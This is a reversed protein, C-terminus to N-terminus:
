DANTMEEDWQRYTVAQTHPDDVRVWPAALRFEGRIPDYSQFRFGAARLKSAGMMTADWPSMARALDKHTISLTRDAPRDPISM